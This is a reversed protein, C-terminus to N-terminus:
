PLISLISISSFIFPADSTTATCIHTDWWLFFFLGVCICQAKALFVFLSSSLFDPVNCHFCRIFLFLAHSMVWMVFLLSLSPIKQWLGVHAEPASPGKVSYTTEQTDWISRGWNPSRETLIQGCCDPTTWVYTLFRMRFDLHWLFRLGIMMMHDDNEMITQHNQQALNQHNEQAM